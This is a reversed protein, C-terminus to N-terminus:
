NGEPLNNEIEKVGVEISGDDIPIVLIDDEPNITAPKIAWPKGSDSHIIIVKDGVSAPQTLLKLTKGEHDIFGSENIKVNLRDFAIIKRSVPYGLNKIGDAIKNFITLKKGTREHYEFSLYTKHDLFGRTDRSILILDEEVTLLSEWIIEDGISNGSSFPPNGISKRLKAKTIVSDSNKIKIVSEDNYLAIIESFIPDKEPNPIID